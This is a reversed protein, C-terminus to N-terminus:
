KWTKKTSLVISLIGVGSGEQEGAAAGAPEEPWHGYQQRYRRMEDYKQRKAPDSLVEYAENIEKFREEALKDGPNVDPHYQRALKRFAQRIGKEDAHESVGLIRYYDKDDAAM